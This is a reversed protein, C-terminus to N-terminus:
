EEEFEEVLEVLEEEVSEEQDLQSLASREYQSENDRNHNVGFAKRSSFRRFARNLLLAEGFQPTGTVRSCRGVSMLRKARRPPGSRDSTLFTQEGKRISVTKCQSYRLM